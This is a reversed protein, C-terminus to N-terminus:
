RISLRIVAISADLNCALLDAMYELSEKTFIIFHKSFEGYLLLPIISIDSLSKSSNDSEIPIGLFLKNPMKVFFLNIINLVATFFSFLLREM